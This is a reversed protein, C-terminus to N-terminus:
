TPMAEFLPKVPASKADPEPQPPAAKQDQMLQAMWAEPSPAWQSVIQLKASGAATLDLQKEKVFYKLDPEKPDKDLTAEHNRSTHLEMVRSAEPKEMAVGEKGSIRDKIYAVRLKGDIIENMDHGDNLHDRGWMAVSKEGRALAIMKDARAGEAEPGLRDAIFKEYATTRRDGFEQLKDGYRVLRDSLLQQAEPALKLKAFFQPDNIYQKYQNDLVRNQARFMKEENFVAVGEDLGAQGRTDGTFHVQMGAHKAEVLIRAFQVGIEKRIAPTAGHISELLPAKKMIEVDSIKPPQSNLRRMMDQVEPNFDNYELMLHKAGAAAMAKVNDAVTKVLAPDGHNGDALFTFQQRGAVLSGFPNAPDIKLKEPETGM